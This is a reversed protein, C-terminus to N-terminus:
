EKAVEKSRREGLIVSACRTFYVFGLVGFFIVILAYLSDISDGSERMHVLVMFLGMFIWLFGTVLMLITNRTYESLVMAVLCVVLLILPMMGVIVDESGSWEMM